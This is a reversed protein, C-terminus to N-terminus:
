SVLLLDDLYVFVTSKLHAPIICDMLRCMTQPANTLGFPMVKYRYLPRNPVTFATMDRSGEDLSIQWFAHKLDLASIFEAKPLRSLIGSIKPQPYADKVTVENLRRSDLCLRQKGDKEVMTVPSSWSCNPPAPEIVGLKLMKDIEAHLKQEVAPSISFYRQKIPRADKQIEITHKLINTNGLGEKEFSPFLSIIKNLRQQQEDTLFEINKSTDVEDVFIKDILGFEKWFDIGLYLDQKLEPIIYIELKKTMDRFTIETSVSGLINYSKGGATEVQAINKKFPLNKKM